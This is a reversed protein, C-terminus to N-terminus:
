TEDKLTVAHPYQKRLNAKKRNVAAKVENEEYHLNPLVDHDRHTTEQHATNGAIAAAHQAMAPLWMPTYILHRAYGRRKFDSALGTGISREINERIWERSM